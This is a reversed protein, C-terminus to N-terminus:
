SRRPYGYKSPDALVADVTAAANDRGMAVQELLQVVLQRNGSHIAADFQEVLGAASLRESVTMGDFNESRGSGDDVTTRHQSAREDARGSRPM